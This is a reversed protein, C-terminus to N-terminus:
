LYRSLVQIGKELNEKSLSAYGLRMGLIPESFSFRDPTYFSVLKTNAMEKVKYLNLDKIPKLWFALGGEPINYEIKDKLYCDLLNIFFNRKEIYYNIMRKHHRRLDGSEILELIAQEMISDGQMDIIKRLTGVKEIFTQSSFIYGVRIAPAILKSLTGIYVYNNNTSYASVPMIPRQGFHFENDYDDEIITFGYQNSLEVLRLRRSLSLTVATPYQHHPTIYIAKVVRKKLIEEILEISVGENDVSIPILTAGAHRFAEWAPKFGPNEVLVIDGQELLCHATLFLAMQSGRTICIQNASTNMSRNYNLMKSIAERFKSDGYESALNMIQWRAKKSFIRRHSRALENVPACTTDPLGDDLFILDNRFIEVVQRIPHDNKEDPISSPLKASVSTGKRESSCLWGEALLIDFAQVVTNRNVELLTAFQRTGPLTEGAKLVGKKICSIIEDAIQVYIAKSGEKDIKLQMLWPRLM